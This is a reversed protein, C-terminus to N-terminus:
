NANAVMFYLLAAIFGAEVGAQIKQNANMEAWKHRGFALRIAGNPDNDGIGATAMGLGAMRGGNVLGERGLMSQEAAMQYYVRGLDSNWLAETREEPSQRHLAAQFALMEAREAAVDDAVLTALGGAPPQTSTESFDMEVLGLSFGDDAAAPLALLAVLVTLLCRKAM